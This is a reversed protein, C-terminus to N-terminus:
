TDRIFFLYDLLLKEANSCSVNDVFRPIQNKKRGLFLTIGVDQALITPILLM